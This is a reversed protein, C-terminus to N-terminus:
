NKYLDLDHKDNISKNQGYNLFYPNVIDKKLFL